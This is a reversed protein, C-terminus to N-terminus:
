RYDSTNESVRRHNPRREDLHDVQRGSHTTRYRALHRFHAHFIHHEGITQNLQYAMRNNEKAITFDKFFLGELQKDHLIKFEPGPHAELVKEDLLDDLKYETIRPEFIKNVQYPVYPNTM